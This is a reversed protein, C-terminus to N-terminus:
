LCKAASCPVRQLARGFSTCSRFRLVTASSLLAQASLDHNDDPINAGLVVVPPLEMCVACCCSQRRMQLRPFLEEQVAIIVDEHMSAGTDSALARLVRLTCFRLRDLTAEMARRSSIQVLGSASDSGTCAPLSLTLWWHRTSRVAIDEKM